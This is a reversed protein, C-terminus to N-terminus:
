IWEFSNSDSEFTNSHPEFTNSHSEFSNSDVSLIPGLVFVFVFAWKRQFRFPSLQKTVSGGDM